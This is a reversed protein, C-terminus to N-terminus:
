SSAPTGAIRVARRRGARGVAALGAALFLAVAGPSPVFAAGTLLITYTGTEGVGQWATHPLLGGPGDPGSIEGPATINFIGGGASVPIDGAGCVSIYYDGAATLAAGSGDTAANLLLANEGGPGVANALLGLATGGPGPAMLYLKADWSGGLIRASFNAPDVIRILFMDELDPPQPGSSLMGMISNLTGSGIPTQAQGALSGADEVESWDPGAAAVGPLGAAALLAALCRGRGRTRRCSM